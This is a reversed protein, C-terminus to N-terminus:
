LFPCPPHLFHLLFGKGSPSHALKFSVSAPSSPAPPLCCTLFSISSVPLLSFLTKSAPLFLILPMMNFKEKYSSMCRIRFRKSFRNCSAWCTPSPKFLWASDLCRRQKLSRKRCTEQWHSRLFSLNGDKAENTKSHSCGTWCIMGKHHWTPHQYIESAISSVWGPTLENAKTGKLVYFTRGPM